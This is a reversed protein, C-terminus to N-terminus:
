HHGAERAMEKRIREETVVPRAYTDLAHMALGIGWGGMPFVPWFFGNGGTVLWIVVIFGNVLVYVLLHRHFDARRRLRTVARARPDTDVADVDVADDKQLEVGETTHMVVEEDKLGV